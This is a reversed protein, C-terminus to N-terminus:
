VPNPVDVFHHTIGFREVIAAGLAAIGYRETAHHGCALYAVGSERALHVTSESIEGSMFVSAGADIAEQLMSQAAGTCWAIKGVTQNPDGILLPARGLQHSIWSSLQALSQGNHQVSNGLFGLNKDGFNSEIDFGLVRALQVNNGWVPHLDLPLHFGFLNIDHLILKKVRQYKQGVIVPNEGRWFYGHHVIICDASLAIAADILALSATVGSVIVKIQDKGEVQLGNPCYDSITSILGNEYFFQTLEARMVQNQTAENKNINNSHAQQAEKILNM